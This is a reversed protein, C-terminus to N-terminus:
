SIANVVPFNKNKMLKTEIKSTSKEKNRERILCFLLIKM